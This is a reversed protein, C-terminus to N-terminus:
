EFKAIIEELEMNDYNGSSMLLLNTNDYNQSLLYKKLEQSDTFLRLDPRKFGERLTEEDMLELKKLAVAHPNLYIIAEDALDMTGAYNPLFDKNLSSYTHLEQVSILRSDPFQNKVADSTAKLKSPAHAFDRFLHSNGKKKVLELRKAAGKFKQISSYFEIESVGLSLCIEKAGQLNQLNHEGFLQIPVDGKETKLITQGQRIESPHAKYPILTAESKLKDAIEKVLPDVECYILKGGEPTMEMFQRFLDKYKDFDPFVNFHDWAIGSVLGIDHHYHFFKSRRDLPSTLYEDGEIIIIPADSLRVMLDFGEIQAGVLYDFDIGQDKLVHLIISTISTKGHSGAVVVRTKDKSQNYIFEPFSYIPLGLEKAKVLEPNEIRAHMGLIVGDLNKDIKEPFWGWEDPLIGAKALRSRSPEYIEDDSGSVEYGKQHLALALNHMVAGGIAIFHYKKM